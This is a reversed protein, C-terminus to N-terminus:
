SDALQERRFESPTRGTTAKFTRNFPGISQFGADLAISLVPEDRRAPDALAARAAELRFANVYANFNRHGLRRNILRRLRYEPVRLSSALSAVTLDEGRFAGGAMHRLLAAALREEEPDPLSPEAVSLAAPGAPHPAPRAPVTAAPAAEGAPLPEDFFASRWVRLLQWAIGALMAALFATDAAATPADFRGHPSGVRAALSVLTYLVGTVLIFGRLRRREEFLDDRWHALAAWAALVACVAPVARQLAYGLPAFLGGSAGLACNIGSLLAAALWAAAHVPRFVFDDDFLSQVFIWFLVANGVSIAVLPVQWALPVAEEFAPTSSVTQVVLGLSLAIGARALRSHRLERVLMAALLLALVVLAGRLAADVLSLM